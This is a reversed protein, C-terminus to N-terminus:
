IKYETLFQLFQRLKNKWESFTLHIGRNEWINIVLPFSKSSSHSPSTTIEIKELRNGEIEVLVRECTFVSTKSKLAKSRKKLCELVEKLFTKESSPLIVTKNRKGMAIGYILVKNISTTERVVM